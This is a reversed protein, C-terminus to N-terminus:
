YGCSLKSERIQLELLVDSFHLLMLLAQFLELPRNIIHMTLSLRLIIENARADSVNMPASTFFFTYREAESCAKSLKELDFLEGIPMGWGALLWEHLHWQSKTCPWVEFSRTDGAVASVKKEWLFRLLAESPEIGINEPKQKKYLADLRARKDESMNEYQNIYGFRILLIDGPRIDKDTLRQYRLVEILQDFPVPHPSM